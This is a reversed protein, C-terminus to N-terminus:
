KKLWGFWGNVLVDLILIIGFVNGLIVLADIVRSFM